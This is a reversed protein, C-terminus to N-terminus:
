NDHQPDATGPDLAFVREHRPKRRLKSGAGIARQLIDLFQSSRAKNKERSGGSHRFLGPDLEEVLSANQFRDVMWEMVYVTLNVDM